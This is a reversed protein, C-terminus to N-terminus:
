GAGSGVIVGPAGSLPQFIARLSVGIMAGGTDDVVRACLWWTSAVVANVQFLLGERALGLGGPPGTLITTAEFPEDDPMCGAGRFLQWVITVPFTIEPSGPGLSLLGSYWLAFTCGPVSEMKLICPLNGAEVQAPLTTGFNLGVREVGDPDMTIDDRRIFYDPGRFVFAGRTAPQAM